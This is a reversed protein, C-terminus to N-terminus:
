ARRRRRAGFACAMCMVAGVGPAPVVHYQYTVTYRVTGGAGFFIIGAPDESVQFQTFVSLTIAGSGIWPTLDAPDNIHVSATDTNFVSASNMNTNAVTSQILAQTDALLESGLSWEADLQAFINVPVGSGDTTYGGIISTLFDLHVAHLALTGGQTDFQQLVVNQTGPAGVGSVSGSQEISGAHAASAVAAVIAASAFMSVHNM